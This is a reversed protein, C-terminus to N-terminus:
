PTAPPGGDRRLPEPELAVQAADATTVGPAVVTVRGRGTRKSDYMANDAAELLAETTEGSEPYVAVGISVGIDIRQGDVELPSTRFRDLLREAALRGQELDAGPIMMVFEDGGLRALTCYARMERALLNAAAVLVKDGTTHGYTDNVDKFHDLDLWLLAMSEGLRKSKELERELEQVFRRRNYVNTLADVTALAVLDDRQKDMAALM